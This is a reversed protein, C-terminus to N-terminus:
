RGEDGYIEERSLESGPPWPGPDWPEFLSDLEFWPPGEVAAPRERPAVREFSVVQARVRPRVRFGAAEWALAHSHRGGNSWWAPHIRASDPLRFGLASEIEDFSVTWRDEAFSLLRRHLAAYKGRAAAARMAALTRTNVQNAPVLHNSSQNSLKADECPM